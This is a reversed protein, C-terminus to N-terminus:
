KRINVTIAGCLAGVVSMFLLDVGGNFIGTVGGCVLAFLLNILLSSLAGILVGKVLGKGEKICFFCGLFVSLVKIFQNVAKIVGTSLMATEIIFAFILVALLTTILATLSGKLIAPFFQRESEKKSM